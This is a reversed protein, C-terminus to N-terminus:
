SRSRENAVWPLLAGKVGDLQPDHSLVFEPDFPWRRDGLEHQFLFWLFRWFRTQCHDCRLPYLFVVRAPFKLWGRSSQWLRSGGCRPCRGDFGFM